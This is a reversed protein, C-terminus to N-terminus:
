AAQRQKKKRGSIIIGLSVLLLAAITRVSFAEQGEGLFLASLLVGLVPNMFGLITIRSVDNYKLLVGWLTYAGASIFAMYLLLLWASGGTPHLRGGLLTGAVAMVIGGFFFQWGSLTVPNEWASFKKIFCGAVASALAAIIMSGEGAFSIAGGSSQGATVIMLVGIFGFISGLVKGATLKEFKFVFAAFFISFFTGAANIVSGRVGTTHALGTYFFIYQLITQFCMLVFVYKWGSKQPVLFKHQQLSGFAIVMVGAICFRTGAFVIRSFLDDAGISFLEYGIKIAPSASGWLFCCFFAVLFVIAPNTWFKEKKDTKATVNTM